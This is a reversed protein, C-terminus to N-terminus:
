NVHMMIHSWLTAGVGFNLAEAQQQENCSIVVCHVYFAPATRFYVTWVLNRLFESFVPDVYFNPVYVRVCLCM